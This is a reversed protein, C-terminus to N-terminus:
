EGKPQYLEPLPMWAIVEIDNGNYDEKWHEIHNEDGVEWFEKTAFEYTMEKVVGNRLTVLVNERKRKGFTTRKQEPLRESCPIWGNNYEESVENVIKEVEDREILLLPCWNRQCYNCTRNDECVSSEELREVIKEFAKNM